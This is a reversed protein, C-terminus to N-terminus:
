NQSKKWLFYKDIADFDDDTLNMIDVWRLGKSSNYPDVPVGVQGGNNMRFMGKDSLMELTVTDTILM